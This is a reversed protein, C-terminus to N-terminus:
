ASAGSAKDAVEAQEVTPPATGTPESSAQHANIIFATWGKLKEDEGTAEADGWYLLARRDGERAMDLTGKLLEREEQNEPTLALRGPTSGELKM